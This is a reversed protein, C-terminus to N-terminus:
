DLDVVVPASNSWRSDFYFRLQPANEKVVFSLEGSRSEGPRLSGAVIPKKVQGLPTMDYTNGLADRMFVQHVPIFPQNYVTDNVVSIALIMGTHGETLRGSMLERAPVNRKATIALRPQQSAPQAPQRDRMGGAALVAWASLAIAIVAALALGAKLRHGALRHWGAHPEHHAHNVTTTTKATTKHDTKKSPM